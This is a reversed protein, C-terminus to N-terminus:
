MWARAYEPLMMNSAYNETAEDIKSRLVDTTHVAHDVDHPSIPKTIGHGYRIYLRGNSSYIYSDEKDGLYQKNREIMQDETYKKSLKTKDDIPILLNHSHMAKNYLNDSLTGLIPRYSSQDVSALGYTSAVDPNISFNGGISMRGSYIPHNSLIQMNSNQVDAVASDLTKGAKMKLYIQTQASRILSESDNGTLTTLKDINFGSVANSAVYKLLDNSSTIASYNGNATIYKAKDRNGLEEQFLISDQQMQRQVDPSYSKILNTADYTNSLNSNKDGELFRVHRLANTDWSSGFITKHTDGSMKYIHNANANIQPLISPDQNDTNMNAFANMFNKSEVPLPDYSSDPLGSNTIWTKLKHQYDIQNQQKEEPTSSNSLKDAAEKIVPSWSYALEDARGNKLYKKGKSGIQRENPDNSKELNDLDQSVSQSGGLATTIMKAKLKANYLNLYDPNAQTDYESMNSPDGGHFVDDIGRTVANDRKIVMSGTEIRANSVSMDPIQPAEQHHITAWATFQKILGDATNIQSDKTLHTKINEIQQISSSINDYIKKREKPDTTNSLQTDYASLQAGIGNNITNLQNTSHINASKITSKQLLSQGYLDITNNLSDRENPLLDKTSKKLGMLSASTNSTAASIDQPNHSSKIFENALDHSNKAQSLLNYYLNTSYDKEIQMGDKAVTSISNAISGINKANQSDANAKMQETNITQEASSEILNNDKKPTSAIPQAPSLVSTLKKFLEFSM